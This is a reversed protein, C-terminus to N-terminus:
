KEKHTQYWFREMYKKGGATGEEYMSNWAKKYPANEAARENNVAWDQILQQLLSFACLAAVFAFTWPILRGFIIKYYQGQNTEPFLLYQKKHVVDKPQAAVAAAIQQIGEQVIKEMPKVDVPPTNIKLQQIRGDFGQVLKQLADIKEDKERNSKVIEKVGDALETLVIVIEEQEM